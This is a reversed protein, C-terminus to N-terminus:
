GEGSPSPRGYRRRDRYPSSRQVIPILVGLAEDPKPHKVSRATTPQSFGTKPDLGRRLRYRPFAIEPVHGSKAWRYGPPSENHRRSDALLLLIQLTTWARPLRAILLPDAALANSIMPAASLKWGAEERGLDLPCVISRQLPEDLIPTLPYLLTSRESFGAAIEEEESKEPFAKIRM